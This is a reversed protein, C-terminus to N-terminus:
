NTGIELPEVCYEPLILPYEESRKRWSTLTQELDAKAQVFEEEAKDMEMKLKLWEWSHIKM